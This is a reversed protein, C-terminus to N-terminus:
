LLTDASRFLMRKVFYREGFCWVNHPRASMRISWITDDAVIRVVGAAEVRSFPSFTLPERLIKDESSSVSNVPCSLWQLSESVANYKSVFIIFYRILIVFRKQNLFIIIKFSCGQGRFTLRNIERVISQRRSYDSFYKMAEHLSRHM